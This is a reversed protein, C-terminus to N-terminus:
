KKKGKDATAAKVFGCTQQMAADQEFRPELMKNINTAPLLSKKEHTKMEIDTPSLLMRVSAHMIKNSVSAEGDGLGKLDSRAQEIKRAIVQM